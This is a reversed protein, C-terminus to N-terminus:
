KIIWQQSFDLEITDPFIFKGIKAFLDHYKTKELHSIVSLNFASTGIQNPKYLYVEQGVIGGVSNLGDIISWDTNRVWGGHKIIPISEGGVSGVLAMGVLKKYNAQISLADKIFEYEDECVINYATINSIAFREEYKDAISLDYIVEENNILDFSSADAFTFRESNQFKLETTKDKINRVISVCSYTKGDYNLLSGLKINKWSYHSALTPNSIASFNCLFPCTLTLESEYFGKELNNIENLYDTIKKYDKGQINWRGIPSFYNENPEVADTFGSPILGSINPVQCYIASTVGQTFRKSRSVDKSYSGNQYTKINHPLFGYRYSGGQKAPLKITIMKLTPSITLLVNKGEQEIEKPPSNIDSAYYIDTGEFAGYFSLGQFKDKGTNELPATKGSVKTFDKIYCAGQIFEQRGIFKIKITTPDSFYIHLFMGFNQALFYFIDTFTKIDSNKLWTFDEAKAQDSEKTFDNTTKDAVILRYSIFPSVKDTEDGGSEDAYIGLKLKGLSWSTLFLDDDPYFMYPFTSLPWGLVINSEYLGTPVAHTFRCPRFKGDINTKEIDFTYNGEGAAVLSDTAIDCFKKLLKNLNVLDCYADEYTGGVFPHQYYRSYSGLRDAVNNTKWTADIDNIIDEYKLLDGVNEFFPQCTFKWERVASVIEIWELDDIFLDDWSQEPLIVGSFLLDDVTAIGARHLFTAIYRRKTTDQSDLIFNLATLDNARSDSTLIQAENIGFEMVDECLKNSNKEMDNKIQSVDIFDITGAVSFEWYDNLTHGTTAGFLIKIGDQLTQLGGTISVGTAEWTLGGDNSWRFKDTGNVFDIKVLIQLPISGTYIGSNTLDDLGIGYFIIDAITNQFCLYQEDAIRTTISWGGSGDEIYNNDIQKYIKM